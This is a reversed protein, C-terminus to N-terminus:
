IFWRIGDDQLTVALLGSRAVKNQKMVMVRRDNDFDSQISIGPIQPGGGSPDLNGPFMSSEVLKTPPEGFYIKPDLVTEAFKFLVNLERLPTLLWYLIYLFSLRYTPDFEITKKDPPHDGFWRKPSQTKDVLLLSRFVKLITIALPNQSLEILEELRIPTIAGDLFDLMLRQGNYRLDRQSDELVPGPAIASSTPTIVNIFRDRITPLTSALMDILQTLPQQFLKSWTEIIGQLIQSNVLEYVDDPLLENFKDFLTKLGAYCIVNYIGDGEFLAQLLTIERDFEAEVQRYREPVLNEEDNNSLDGITRIIQLLLEEEESRIPTGNNAVELETIATNDRVVRLYEKDKDSIADTAADINLLDTLQGVDITQLDHVRETNLFVYSFIKQLNVAITYTKFAVCLSDEYGNQSLEKDCYDEQILQLQNNNLILRYPDFNNDQAKSIQTYTQLILYDLAFIQLLTKRATRLDPDDDIIHLGRLSILNPDESTTGHEAAINNAPSVRSERPNTNRFGAVRYYYTSHAKLGTDLVSIPDPPIVGASLKIVKIPRNEETDVQFGPTTGRYIGYYEYSQNHWEVKLQRRGDAGEPLSVYVGLPNEEQQDAPASALARIDLATTSGENSIPGIKGKDNVAAVRYYYASGAQVDTDVYSTDKSIAAPKDKATDVRFGATTIKYINYSDISENKPNAKWKITIQGKEGATVDLGTVQSPDTL